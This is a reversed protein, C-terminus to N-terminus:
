ERRGQHRYSALVKLRYIDELCKIELSFPTKEIQIELKLFSKELLKLMKVEFVTQPKKEEEESQNEM